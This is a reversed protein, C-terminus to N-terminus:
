SARCPRSHRPQSGYISNGEGSYDFHVEMVELDRNAELKIDKNFNPLIKAAVEAPTLEKPKQSGPHYLFIAFLIGGIVVVLPLSFMLVRRLKQGTTQNTLYFPDNPTPASLFRELFGLPGSKGAPASQAKPAAPKMGAYVISEVFRRFRNAM